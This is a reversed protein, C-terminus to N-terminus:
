VRREAAWRRHRAGLQQSAGAAVPQARRLSHRAGRGAAGGRVRPRRRRPERPRHWQSQQPAASPPSPLRSHPSAGALPGAHPALGLMVAPGSSVISSRAKTGRQRALGDRKCLGGPLCRPCRAAGSLRRAAAGAAAAGGGCLVQRALAGGERGGSPWALRKIPRQTPATGPSGCTAVVQLRRCAPPCRRAPRLACASCCAAPRLSLAAACGQM